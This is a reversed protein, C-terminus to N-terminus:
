RPGTSEAGGWYYALTLFARNEQYEGTGNSTDRDFREVLLRLGLTRWARWNLIAALRTEDSELDVNDFDESEISGLLQFDVTSALRRSFTATYAWMTRDLQALTEYDEQNWAAGVSFGNRGRTFRYELSVVRNEFPDATATIETGGGVVNGQLENRLSDGADGLQTGVTLELLSSASLDRTVIVNVLANGSKDGGDRELWTYGLQADITTRSADLNWGVFVSDRDFDTNIAADFDVSETVANLSLESRPSARRGIALGGTTRESDLPSEEYTTTSWRGFLRGFGTSGFRVTLDPGTTFYNLDERTEPTMPAFPDSQAQGFSDQFVWQLTEPVIALALTGNATGIIESEYTDDLYEYYSLDVIADGRIRRTRERWDLELGVTGITEDTEDTPVRGINDSYGVGAEAVATLDAQAPASLVLAALGAAAPWAMVGAAAPAAAWGQLVRAM